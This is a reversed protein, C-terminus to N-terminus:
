VNPIIEVPNSCYGYVHYTKTVDYKTELVFTVKSM